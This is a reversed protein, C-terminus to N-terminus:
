RDPRIPMVLATFGPQDPSSLRVADTPGAAELLVRAGVCAGLARLLLASGFRISQEKGRLVADLRAGDVAASGDALGLDVESRGAATVASGLASRDVLVATEPPALDGLVIRHAPFARDSTAIGLLEDGDEVSLRGESTLVLVVEDLRDLRDALDDAAPLRLVARAEGRVEPAVAVTRCAMWYRNTAVVDLEPGRADLAVASLASAPDRDAAVRVQRLAAGVARADVRVRVVDLSEVQDVMALVADLVERTRDAHEARRAAVEAVLARAEEPPGDLVARMSEVPVEVERMLAVLRARRELDPTYYRYGTVPDTEAPTLLGCEDYYRLASPPLGVARAFAGITLLPETTM